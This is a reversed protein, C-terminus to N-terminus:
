EQERSSRRVSRPREAPAGCRFPTPGQGGKGDTRRRQNLRRLRQPGARSMRLRRAVILAPSHGPHDTCPDM